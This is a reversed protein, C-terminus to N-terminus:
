KILGEELLVQRIASLLDAQETSPQEVIPPPLIESIKFEATLGVMSKLADIKDQAIPDESEKQQQAHMIGAAAIRKLIVQPDHVDPFMKIPQFAYAQYSEPNQSATEDSAFAVLISNSIEDFGMVKIKIVNM